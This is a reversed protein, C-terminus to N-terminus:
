IIRSFKSLFKFSISKVLFTSLFISPPKRIKLLHAVTAAAMANKINHKGKISFNETSMVLKKKNISINISQNNYYAGEEIRREISFPILKSGIKNQNIYSNIKKDDGDSILYDNADQNM